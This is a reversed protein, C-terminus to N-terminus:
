QIEGCRPLGRLWIGRPDLTSEGIFHARIGRKKGNRVSVGERLIYLIEDEGEKPESRLRDGTLGISVEYKVM